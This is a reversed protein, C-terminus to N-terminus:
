RSDVARRRKRRVAAVSSVTAFGLLVLQWSSSAGATENCGPPNEPTPAGVCKGEFNCVFGAACDEVSVCSARCGLGDTIAGCTYPTCSTTTVLDAALATTSDVCSSGNFASSCVGTPANTDKLCTRGTACDDNTRCETPCAESTGSCVFSGSGCTSKRPKPECTGPSSGNCMGCGGNCATDCCVGDACFRSACDEARTCAAGSLVGSVVTRFRVRETHTTAVDFSDYQLGLTASKSTVLSPYADDANPTASLAFGDKDLVRGDRAVFAGYVDADKLSRRDMWAVLYSQKDNAYAVAPFDESWRNAAIPIGKSTDAPLPASPDGKVVVGTIDRSESAGSIDQFVVLFDTGDTAVQALDQTVIGTYIAREATAPKSAGKEVFTGYIHPLLTAQETWVVLFHSGNYAISPSKRDLATDGSITFPATDILQDGAIKVRAGLITGVRGGPQPQNWVVLRNTDDAAVTVTDDEIYARSSIEVIAKDVTPAPTNPDFSRARINWQNLSATDTLHEAWVLFFSSGDFIVKPRSIMAVGTGTVGPAPLTTLQVAASPVNDKIYAGYLVPGGGKDSGKVGFRDDFWVAFYKDAQPAYAISSFSASNQSLTVTFGRQSSPTARNAFVASVEPGRIGTGWPEYPIFNNNQGIALDQAFGYWVPLGVCTGQTAGTADFRQLCSGVQGQTGAIGYYGPADGLITKIMFGAAGVQAPPSVAAGAPTIRVGTSKDVVWQPGFLSSVYHGTQVVAFYHGGNFALSTTGEPLSGDGDSSPSPPPPLQAHAVKPAGDALLATNNFRVFYLEDKTGGESPSRHTYIGLFNTGDFAVRPNSRTALGAEAVFSTIPDTSALGGVHVVVIDTETATKRQEAFVVFSDTDAAISYRGVPALLSLPTADKITALDDSVRVGMLSPKTTDRNDIWTIFLGGTSIRTMQLSTPRNAAGVSSGPPIMALRVGNKELVLDLDPKGADVAVPDPTALDKVRAAFLQPTHGRYDFWASIFQTGDFTAVPSSQPGSAAELNSVPVDINTEASVTPDLVAPYATHALVDDSVTLVLEEGERQMAVPAREGRADVWTAASYKLHSDHFHAGDERVDFEGKVHLHVRLAGSGAPARSFMWTHEAHERAGELREEIEGWSRHLTGDRDLTFAGGVALSTAGREIQATQLSSRPSLLLAGAPSADLKLRADRLAFTGGRSVFPTPSLRLPRSVSVTRTSQTQSDHDAENSPAKPESPKDPTGCGLLAVVAMWGFRRNVM